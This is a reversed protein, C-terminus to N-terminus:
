KQEEFLHQPDALIDAVRQRPNFSSFPDQFVIQIKRRLRRMAARNSAPFTEEGIAARGHAIPHLGLLARALTSKGCGSEGVLGLTEGERITFSVDHVAKFISPKDFFSSGANKYECTLENVTLAARGQAPPPAGRKVRAPIFEKALEADGRAYFHDVSEDAVIRGDKMVAIRDSIQSVVALDHTIFLLAAGDEKALQKLLVIIEAQTTVDLATTPEDAILVCPRMAIALVVRQRQGGSLEHPRRDPSVEDPGVGVRSLAHRAKVMAEARSIKEHILYTEAVQAGITQLPNLATMPEQFVMAIKRGRLECLAKDNMTLINEGDLIIEGSIEAAGPALGLMALATMSKGSGSRGILGTIEGKRLTLNVGNLIPAGGIALSLERISLADTM